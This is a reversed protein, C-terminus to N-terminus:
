LTKPAIRLWFSAGSAQGQCAQAKGDEHHSLGHKDKLKCFPSSEDLSLMTASSLTQATSAHMQYSEKKPVVKPECACPPQM